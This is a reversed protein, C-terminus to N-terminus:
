VVPVTALAVGIVQYLAAHNHRLDALIRDIRIGVNVWATKKGQFEM